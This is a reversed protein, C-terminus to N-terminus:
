YIVFRQGTLFKFIHMAEDESQCNAVVSLSGDEKVEVVSEENVIFSPFHFNSHKYIFKKTRIEQVGVVQQVTIAGGGYAGKNNVLIFCRKFPGGSSTSVYGMVDHFENWVKGTERDGYYIRYRNRRNRLAYSLANHARIYEEDNMYREDVSVQVPNEIEM